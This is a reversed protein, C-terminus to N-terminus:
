SHGCNEASWISRRYRVVSKDMEERDKAGKKFRLEVFIGRKWGRSFGDSERGPSYINSATGQCGPIVPRTEGANRKKRRERRKKEKKIKGRSGGNWRFIGQGGGERGGSKEIRENSKIEGENRAIELVDFFFSPEVLNRTLM